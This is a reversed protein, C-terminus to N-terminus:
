TSIMRMRGSESEIRLHFGEDKLIKRLGKVTTKIKEHTNHKGIHKISEKYSLESANRNTEYLLSKDIWEGYRECFLRAIRYLRSSTDQFPYGVEKHELKGSTSIIPRNKLKSSPTSVRLGLKKLLRKAKNRYIIVKYKWTDATRESELPRNRVNVVGESILLDITAKHSYRICSSTDSDTFQNHELHIVSTNDLPNTLRLIKTLLDRAEKIAVNETDM